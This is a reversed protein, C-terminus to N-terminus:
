DAWDPNDNKIVALNDRADVKKRFFDAAKKLQDFHEAVFKQGEAGALFFEGAAVLVAPITDEAGSFDQGEYVPREKNGRIVDFLFKGLADGIKPVIKVMSYTRETRLPLAGDERQHKLVTTLSDIMAQPDASAFFNGGAHALDRSWVQDYFNEKPDSCPFVGFGPQYNKEILRRTEETTKIILAEQEPTLPVSKTEYHQRLRSQRILDARKRLAEAEFFNRLEGARSERDAKGAEPSKQPNQGEARRLQDRRHSLDVVEGPKPEQGEPM